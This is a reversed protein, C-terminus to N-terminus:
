SNYAKFMPLRLKQRIRDARNARFFGTIVPPLPVIPMCRSILRNLGQTPSIREIKKEENLNETVPQFNKGKEVQGAKVNRPLNCLNMALLSTDITQM